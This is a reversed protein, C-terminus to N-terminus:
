LFCVMISHVVNVGCTASSPVLGDYIFLFSRLATRNENKLRSERCSSLRFLLPIHACLCVHITIYLEIDM